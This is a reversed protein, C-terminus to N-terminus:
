NEPDEETPRLHFIDVEHMGQRSRLHLKSATEEEVTEPSIRFNETEPEWHPCKKRTM